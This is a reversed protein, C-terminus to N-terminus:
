CCGKMMSHIRIQTSTPILGEGSPPGARKFARRSLNKRDKRFLTQGRTTPARFTSNFLTMISNQFDAIKSSIEGSLHSDFWHLSHQITKTYLTAIIEALLKPRYKIDFLREIFFMGHHMLKFFVFLLLLLGVEAHSNSSIADIIEKIQYDVAVSFVSAILAILFLAAIYIKYKKIMLAFFHPLTRAALM